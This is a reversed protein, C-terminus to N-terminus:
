LMTSKWPRSVSIAISTKAEEFAPITTEFGLWNMSIQTFKNQRQTTRHTPLPSAVYQDSTWPTRGEAYLILISFINPDLSLVTSSIPPHVSLCVSLSHEEV